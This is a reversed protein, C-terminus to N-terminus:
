EHPPVCFYGAASAECWNSFCCAAASRPDCPQHTQACAVCAPPDPVGDCDTDVNDCSEAAGPRIARNTDDCDHGGCSAAVAGDHDADVDDIVGNCDDDVKNCMESAGPRVAANRDNCDGLEVPVGDHDLDFGEDVLGDCDNDHYDWVEATPACIQLAVSPRYKEFSATQDHFDGVLENSCRACSADAASPREPILLWGHHVLGSQMVGQLDATVDFGISRSEFPDRVIPVTGVAVTPGFTAAGAVMDWPVSCDRVANRIDRDESCNWTAGTPLMGFFPFLPGRRQGTEVWSHLLRHVSVPFTRPSVQREHLVLSAGVIRAKGFASDYSRAISIVDTAKILIRRQLEPGRSSDTRSVTLSADRSFNTNPQAESITVAANAYIRRFVLNQDGILGLPEPQTLSAANTELGEDYSPDPGCGYLASIVACIAPLARRPHPVNLNRFTRNM